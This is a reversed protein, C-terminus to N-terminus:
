KIIIGYENLNESSKDNMEIQFIKQGGIIPKFINEEIMMEKPVDYNKKMYSTDLEIETKKPSLIPIPTRITKLLSLKDPTIKKKLLSDRNKMCSFINNHILEVSLQKDQFTMLHNTKNSYDFYNQFVRKMYIKREYNSKFKMFSCNNKFFEDIYMNENTELEEFLIKLEKKGIEGNKFLTSFYNEFGKRKTLPNTREYDNHFEPYTDIFTETFLHEQTVTTLNPLAFKQIPFLMYVSFVIICIMSWVHFM